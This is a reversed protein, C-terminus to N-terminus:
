NANVRLCSPNRKLAFDQHEFGVAKRTGNQDAEDTRHLFCLLLGYALM